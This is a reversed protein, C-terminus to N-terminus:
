GNNQGSTRLCCNKYKKGSGCPCPDNRGVSNADKVVTQGSAKKVVIKKKAKQGGDLGATIPNAVQVRMIPKPQPVVSLIARATGQRIDEVMADFMDAGQIRYEVIPDRQAYSQLGVTSKLEDMTDIHEMWATDVNRLLIAREVERFTEEGFLAEKEAYRDLARKFLEEEIDERSIRSRQEEDFRYDEETTLTGLYHARLGDFDWDEREDGALYTAVAAGISGTLMKQITESIDEGNLVDARQKYIITRQQNMVDDYALVYKRRKFNSDEIRKQANEIAGSLIKADIPMDEPMNLAGIIGQLRDTGFLRMLDDQMSLFFRSEGPDGQRGSRGRLQNDIRRSEHRETGLIFLGGAARVREAEPEIEKKYKEVLERYIRRAEMVEEDDIDTFGACAAIAHEPIEMGRMDAKAMFEPNGGLLIDTGRGAMNTSITVAGEKGAQAVIQAEREHYKANLVTHPIGARKLRLSLEESKDISVTGVLVPQGKEHCARVQEVIAQYKGEITRYVADNHDKRIMPMNTPIEVVDLSYIERFENEETLATGTMGSLKRYMRFYNQFTITALTKNEKQVQVGEKAEIAQHLGDSYRRGPMLRGTFADVIMVGHENVVYDVDRHMCGHAKIAQQVHHSLTANEADNFNEVGFFEEAKKAGRATLVANNAKEHVIYDADINDQNEKADMEKVVHKRMSRVLRDAREYLDTAKEGMGSIILPTRAEDVLISDVEDVIAFDHGRQVMQHKYIVMNDRLYDFGFENNTGYTIDAAYAAKKEEASQNHVVLGTTMGMFEYVRGMEDAGVRALYDNVTVIHVGRGLLANLYAPLTAVLTKGEGTKMEAIRGQHLVIGGLVQVRFPRKGLVRDDAERIAAFAEPLIDDLTEGAALRERFKPTMAQLEANSMARYTDALADVQDAIVKLKKLQRQSYTGFIKTVLSM